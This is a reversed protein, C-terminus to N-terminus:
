HRVEVSWQSDKGSIASLPFRKVAVTQGTHANFAQFVVAFGGRGIETGLHQIFVFLTYIISKTLVSAFYM